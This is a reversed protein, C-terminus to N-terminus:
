ALTMVGCLMSTLVMLAFGASLGAAASTKNGSGSGSGGSGSSGSSGASGAPGATSGAPATPVSTGTASALCSSIASNESAVNTGAATNVTGNGAFSCAQAVENQSEYYQTMVYSLQTEPSCASAAGYVGTTGNGSIANCNQGVQGLLSCAANFLEGIIASTNSVQPTFLCSLNQDLCNCAALNPTPPLTTSVLFTQDNSACAPYSPSPAASQTPSNTFQVQGYATKLNAFDQGTTVTNGSVNVMGFQGQSSVAPFYSFALGGSWVPVAQSSFLAAVDAWVRPSPNVCGFESFYAAVNFNSFSQTKSAYAQDFTQNGCLEYNNLGYLDIAAADSNTGTPDCSLYNAFDIIWQPGDVASYTTLATSNISKLYAKTDRAAAKVYAAAASSTQDNAIVVENGIGYALVNDYKNFANITEIYQDLLGTTWTPASRNISGNVPLSLDIVTYINAASLAQMCADHNLSANVSYVRITNVTLQQLFPIDRSCSASDALPDTFTTPEVFGSSTDVQGQPQYAVGKIFFRSGDQNYLYKGARTVKGLGFVNVSLSVLVTLAATLRFSSFM